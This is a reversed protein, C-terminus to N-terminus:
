KLLKASIITQLAHRSWRELGSNQPQSMGTFAMHRLDRVLVEAGDSSRSVHFVGQDRAVPEYYGQQNPRLFLVLEQDVRLPTVGSVALGIEGVEGGLQTVIISEGCKGSWCSEVAIKSMTVPWGAMLLTEQDVVRGEVVLEASATLAEPAQLRFIGASATSSGTGLIAPLAIWALHRGRKRIRVRAPQAPARFALWLVVLLLALWGAEGGSTSCASFGFGGGGPPDFRYAYLETIGAIDDDHLSRKGIECAGASPFMTSETEDDSHGMGFFHGAEHAIVNQLDYSNRCADEVPSWSYHIGNIVIDAEIAQGTTTRYTLFTTALASQDANVDNEATAWRVVNVGDREPKVLADDDSVAIEVSAGFHEQWVSFGELVASGATQEDMNSPSEQLSLDLTV